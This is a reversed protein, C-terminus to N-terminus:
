VQFRSIQDTLDQSVQRLHDAGAKFQRISESTKRAGDRLGQMADSIQQAGQAQAQMGDNVADFRPGVEKVQGIIRVLHDGLEGASAVGRKVNGTFTEMSAVGSSVAERMDTVMKEIELTAVATQEALRRIEQAVVSFGLGHEGAKEAEIAANLSLLNTHAAIKTITTLVGTINDSKQDILSLGHYISDTAEDLGRMTDTMEALGARSADALHETESSTERVGRMTQVLERSTASIEQATAAVETTATGHDAVVAEQERSTTAMESAFSDLANVADQIQTTQDRLGRTMNAIARGLVGIEDRRRGARLSTTLDGQTVANAAETLAGLPGTIMRQTLVCTLLAVFVAILFICISVKNLYGRANAMIEDYDRCATIYWDYELNLDDSAFKAVVYVKRKGQFTEEFATKGARIEKTIPAVDRAAKANLILRTNPHSIVLGRADTMMLYGTKGIKADKLFFDTFYDMRPAVVVVGILKGESKVPVSVVFIPNGRLISPYVESVFSSKGAYIARIYSRKPSCKNEGSGLTRGGVTDLFFGGDKVTKTEGDVTVEISRGEPLVLAVPINENYPYRKHMADLYAEAAERAAKDTPRLCAKVVRPDTAITEAIREQEEIWRTLAQNTKQTIVEAMAYHTELENQKELYFIYVGFLVLAIVIAPVLWALYKTAVSRAMFSRYLAPVILAAIAASPLAVGLLGSLWWALLGKGFDIGLRRCACARVDESGYWALLAFVTWAVAVTTVIMLVMRWLGLDRGRRTMRRTWWAALLFGAAHAPLAAWAVGSSSALATMLGVLVAVFAIWLRPLGPALYLALFIYVAMSPAIQADGISLIRGALHALYVLALFLVVLFVNRKTM